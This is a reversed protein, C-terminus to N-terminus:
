GRLHERRWRAWRRKQGASRREFEGERHYRKARNAKTNPNNSNQKPSAWELNCKINNAADEHVVNNHKNGDIHNVQTQGSQPPPLFTEAIVRHVRRYKIKGDKRLGVKIYNDPKASLNLIRHKGTNMYNLSMIRSYDSALYLDEYGEIPKWQEDIYQNEQEM